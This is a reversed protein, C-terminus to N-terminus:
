EAVGKKWGNSILERLSYWGPYEIEVGCLVAAIRVRDGRRSIIRLMSAGCHLTTTMEGRAGETRGAGPRGGYGAGTTGGDHYGM